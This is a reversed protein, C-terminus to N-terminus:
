AGNTTVNQAVPSVDRGVLTVSGRIENPKTVEPADYQVLEAKEQGGGIDRIIFRM